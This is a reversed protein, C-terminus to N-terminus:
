KKEERWIRRIERAKADPISGVRRWHYLTSRPIGTARSAAVAFRYKRILDDFTM